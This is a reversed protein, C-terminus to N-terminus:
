EDIDGDCFHVPDQCNNGCLANDLNGWTKRGCLECEYQNNLMEGTRKTIIKYKHRQSKKIM